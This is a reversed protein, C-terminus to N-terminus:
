RRSRGCVSETRRRATAPKTSRWRRVTPTAAISCIRDSARGWEKDAWAICRPQAGSVHLGATSVHQAAARVPEPVMRAADRTDVHAMGPFEYIRYQRGPADSDQAVHDDVREEQMTPVHVIPVDLIRNITSAKSTPMYGDYIREMKPTRYVAHAPLYNILIGATQSTGALIIKRPVAGGLPSGSKV